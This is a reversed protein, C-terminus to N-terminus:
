YRFQLMTTFVPCLKELRLQHYFLRKFEGDRLQITELFQYM